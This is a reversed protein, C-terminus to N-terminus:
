CTNFDNKADPIGVQSLRGEGSGSDRRHQIEQVNVDKGPVPKRPLAKWDVDPKTEKQTGPWDEVYYEKVQLELNTLYFKGDCSCCSVKEPMPPLEEVVGIIAGRKLARQELWMVLNALGTATAFAMMAGGGFGIAVPLTIIAGVLCMSVSNLDTFGLPFAANALSIVVAYM